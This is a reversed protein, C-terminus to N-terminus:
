NNQAQKLYAVIGQPKLVKAFLKILRTKDFFPLAWGMFIFDYSNQCAAKLFSVGSSQTFVAHSGVSKKCFELMKESADVCEIQLEKIDRKEKEWTDLINRTIYGQGCAFDLVKIPRSKISAIIDARIIKRTNKGM